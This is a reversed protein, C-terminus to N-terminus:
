GAEKRAVSGYLAISVLQAALLESAKEAYRKALDHLRTNLEAQSSPM